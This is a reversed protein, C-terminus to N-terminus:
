LLHEPGFLYAVLFLLNTNLGPEQSLFAKLGFISYALLSTLRFVKHRGGVLMDKNLSTLGCEKHYSIERNLSSLGLIDGNLSTLGIM